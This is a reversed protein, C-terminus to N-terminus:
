FRYVHESQYGMAGLIGGVEDGVNGAGHAAAPQLSHGSSWPKMVAFPVGCVSNMLQDSGCVLLINKKGPPPMTARIKKEDILGIFGQWPEPGVIRDVTYYPKFRGNSFKALEDLTGKLLVRHDSPNAFLLSFNTKDDKITLAHRLVQLLPTIGTGTGIMGINEYVNPYYKLKHLVVRFNLSDGPKMAWLHETMRGQPQKKVLIDFYGKTGNPTVPTYMRQLQEIMMAGERKQAQLTSCPELRFEDDISPMLFRFIATEETLNIIEGLKFPQFKFSLAGNPRKKDKDGPAEYLRELRRAEEMERKVDLNIDDTAVGYAARNDPAAPNWPTSYGVEADNRKAEVRTAYSAGGFALGTFAAAAFRLAM